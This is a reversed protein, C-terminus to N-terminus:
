YEKKNLIKISILCSIPIVILFTTTILLLVIVYLNIQSISIIMENLDIGIMDLLQISGFGIIAIVVFVAFMAIKGKEGGFKFQLPIMLADLYMVAVLLILCMFLWTSVDFNTNTVFQYITTILVSLAWTGGSIIFGFTYKSAAYDKKTVPLSLLFPYGNDYEDYNITSVVFMTLVFTSYTVVFNPDMGSILTVFAILIIILFFIRQNKLLCLDKIILGKM